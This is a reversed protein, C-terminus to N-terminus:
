PVNTTTGYTPGQGPLSTKAQVTRFIWNFLGIVSATFASVIAKGLPAISPFDATGSTDGAWTTIDGLFGILSMLFLSFFSILATSMAAKYAHSRDKYLFNAIKTFM